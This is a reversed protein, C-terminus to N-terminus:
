FPVRDFRGNSIHDVTMAQFEVDSVQLYTYGLTTLATEMATAATTDHAVVLVDEGVAPGGLPFFDGPKEKFEFSLDQGGDNTITLVETTSSGLEVTASLSTPDTSVSPSTLYFDAALTEGSM